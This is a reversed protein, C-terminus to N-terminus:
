GEPIAPIKIVQQNQKNKERAMKAIMEVAETARPDNGNRIMLNRQLWRLNGLKNLDKRMEPIDMDEIIVLVELHLEDQNTM